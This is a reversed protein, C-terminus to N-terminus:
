ALSKNIFMVPTMNKFLPKFNRLEQLFLVKKMFSPGRLFDIWKFRLIYSLSWIDVLREVERFINTIFM